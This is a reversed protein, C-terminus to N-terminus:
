KLASKMCDASFLKTSKADNNSATIQGRRNKKRIRSVTKIGFRYRSFLALFDKMGGILDDACSAL